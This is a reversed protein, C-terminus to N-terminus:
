GVTVVCRDKEVFAETNTDLLFHVCEFSGEAADQKFVSYGYGHEITGDLERQEVRPGSNNQIFVKHGNRQPVGYDPILLTGGNGIVMQTPLGAISWRQFWHMHGSLVIRLTSPEAWANVFCKQVNPNYGVWHPGDCVVAFAPVHQLLFTVKGKAQAQKAHRSMKGYSSRLIADDQAAEKSFNFTPDILVHSDPKAQHADEFNYHDISQEQHDGNDVMYIVSRDFEIAFPEEFKRSLSDPDLWNCNKDWDGTGMCFNWGPGMRETNEHNGRAAVMPAADLASKFPEFFEAYWSLMTDGWEATDTITACGGEGPNERYVYDGM